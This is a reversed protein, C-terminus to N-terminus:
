CGAWDRDVFAEVATSEEDTERFHWVVRAAEILYRGIQKLRPVGNEVLAAMKRSAGKTAFQLDPRGQGLFNM